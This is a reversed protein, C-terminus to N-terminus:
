DRRVFENFHSEEGFATTEQYILALGAEDFHAFFDDWSIFEVPEGDSYGTFELHLTAGDGPNGAIAPHGGRAEAWARITPHDTTFHSEGAM